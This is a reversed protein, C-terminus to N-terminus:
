FQNAYKSYNSDTLPIKKANKSNKQAQAVYKKYAADAKVFVDPDKKYLAAANYAKRPTILTGDYLKIKGDSYLVSKFIKQQDFDTLIVDCESLNERKLIMYANAKADNYRQMAEHQQKGDKAKGIMIARALLEIQHYKKAQCALGQGAVSGLAEVEDFYGVKKTAATVTTTISLMAVWFFLFSKM